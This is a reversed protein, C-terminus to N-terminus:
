GQAAGQRGNNSALALSSSASFLRKALSNAFTAALAAPSAAALFRLFAPPFFFHPLITIPYNHHQIPLTSIFAAGCSCALVYPAHAEAHELFLPPLSYTGRLNLDEATCSRTRACLLQECLVAWVCPSSSPVSSTLANTDIRLRAFYTNQEVTTSLWQCMKNVCLFLAFQGFRVGEFLSHLAVVFFSYKECGHQDRMTSGAFPASGRRLATQPRLQLPIDSRYM